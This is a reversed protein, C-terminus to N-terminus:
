PNEESTGDESKVAELFALALYLEPIAEKISCRFVIPFSWLSTTAQTESDMATIIWLPLSM